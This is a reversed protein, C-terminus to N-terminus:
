PDITLEGLFEASDTLTAGNIAFSKYSDHERKTKSFFDLVEKPKLWNANWKGLYAALSSYEDKEQLDQLTSGKYSLPNCHIYRSLHLLQEDTKVLVAKYISQFLGGIRKNRKNFYGVYRTSLSKMFSEMGRETKQKILLHFHNPLLCFALLDIKDSFNNLSIKKLIKDKERWSAKILQNRLEEKDSPELYEKLYSLFVKYDQPDQFIKRKEVGRNYIHYFGNKLYQKIVNKAPM